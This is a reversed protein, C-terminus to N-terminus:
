ETAEKIKQVVKAYSEVVFYGTSVTKMKYAFRFLSIYAVRDVSEVSQIKDIPILVKEGRSTVEIFGKM